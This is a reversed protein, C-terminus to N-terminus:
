FELALGFSLIGDDSFDYGQEDFGGTWKAQWAMWDVYLFSNNVGVERDFEQALRPDFVDLLLQLGGGYSFGLKAGNEDGSWWLWSGVGVRGYPVLPVDWRTSTVDFRYTAFVQLPVITVYDDDDSREGALDGDLFFNHGWFQTFGASIGVGLTGFQQFVYRQLRLEGLLRDSGGFSERFVDAAPGQSMEPYYGGLQLELQWARPSERAEIRTDQAAAPLAVVLAIAALTFRSATHHM